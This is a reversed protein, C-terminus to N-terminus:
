LIGIGCGDRAWAAHTAIVGDLSELMVRSTDAIWRELQAQRTADGANYSDLTCEDYLRKRDAPIHSDMLTLLDTLKTRTLPNELTDDFDWANPHATSVGGLFTRQNWFLRSTDTEPLLAATAEWETVSRGVLLNVQEGSPRRVSAFPMGDFAVTLIPLAEKWYSDDSMSTLARLVYRPPTANEDLRYWSLALSNIESSCLLLREDFLHGPITRPLPM